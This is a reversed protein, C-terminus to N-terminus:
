FKSISIVNPKSLDINTAMALFDYKNWEWTPTSVYFPEIIDKWM